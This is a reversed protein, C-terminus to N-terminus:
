RIFLERCWFRYEDSTLDDQNQPVSWKYLSFQMDWGTLNRSSDTCMQPVVTWIQPIVTWIQPIMHLACKHFCLGFKHFWLAFKHFWPAFKHFWLAFKHFWLAFKHFWLGFKPFWLGFKPFWLAFKHFWTRHVDTFDCHINTSDYLAFKNLRAFNQPVLWILAFTLFHKRMRIYNAHLRFTEETQYNQYITASTPSLFILIYKM